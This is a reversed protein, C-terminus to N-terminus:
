GVIKQIMQADGRTYFLKNTFDNSILRGPGINRYIEAICDTAIKKYKYKSDVYHKENTEMNYITSADIDVFVNESFNTLPNSCATYGYSTNNTLINKLVANGSTISMIEEKSGQTITIDTKATSNNYKININIDGEYPYNSNLYNIGPDDTATGLGDLKHFMDKYTIQITSGMKTVFWKHNLNYKKYCNIVGYGCIYGLTTSDDFSTRDRQSACIYGGYHALKLLDDLLLDDFNLTSLKFKNWLFNKLVITAMENTVSSEAVISGNTNFFTFAKKISKLIATQLSSNIPAITSGNGNWWTDFSETTHYPAIHQFSNDSKSTDAAVRSARRFILGHKSLIDLVSKTVSTVDNWGKTHVTDPDSYAYRGCKIVTGNAYTTLTGNALTGTDSITFNINGRGTPGSTTYTDQYVTETSNIFAYHTINSGSGVYFSGRSLSYPTDKYGPEASPWSWTASTGNVTATPVNLYAHTNEDYTPLCTKPDGKFYGNAYPRNVITGNNKYYGYKGNVNRVKIADTQDNITFILNTPTYGSANCSLWLPANNAVCRILSINNLFGTDIDKYGGLVVGIIDDDDTDSNGCTELYYNMYKKNSIFSTHRLSNEGLLILKRASDYAWCSADITSGISYVDSNIELKSIISPTGHFISRKPYTFSRRYYNSSYQTEDWWASIFGTNWWYQYLDYTKDAFSYSSPNSAHNASNVTETSREIIIHCTNYFFSNVELKSDKAIYWFGTVTTDATYTKSSTLAASQTEKGNSTTSLISGTALITNKALKSKPCIWFGKKVTWYTTGEDAWSATVTEKDAAFMYTWLGSDPDGDATTNSSISWRKILVDSSYSSLADSSGNTSRSMTASPVFKNKDLINDTLYKHPSNRIYPVDIMSLNNSLICQWDNSSNYIYYSITKLTGNANMEGLSRLGKYPWKSQDTSYFVDKCEEITMFPRLSASSYYIAQTEDDNPIYATAVPSIASRQYTDFIRKQDTLAAITSNTEKTTECIYGTRVIYDANWTQNGQDNKAGFLVQGPSMQQLVLMPNEQPDAPKVPETKPSLYNNTIYYNKYSDGLYNTINHIENFFSDGTLEKLSGCIEESSMSGFLLEKLSHPAPKSGEIVNNGCIPQTNNPDLIDILDQGIIDKITTTEKILSGSSIGKWLNCIDEGGFLLEKLSNPSHDTEDVTPTVIDVLCLRGSDPTSHAYQPIEYTGVIAQNYSSELLSWEPAASESGATTCIYYGFYTCQYESSLGKNVTIRISVFAIDNVKASSYENKLAIAATSTYAGKLVDNINAYTGDTATSINLKQNLNTTNSLQTIISDKPSPYQYQITNVTIPLIDRDATVKGRYSYKTESLKSWTYANGSKTAKYIQCEKITSAINCKKFSKDNLWEILDMGIGDVIENSRGVLGDHSTGDKEMEKWKKGIDKISLPNGNADTGFLLEDLGNPETANNPDKKNPDLFDYLNSGIVDEIFHMLSNALGQNDGTLNRCARNFIDQIQSDTLGPKGFIMETLDAPQTGSHLQNYFYEYLSGWTDINRQFLLDISQLLGHKHAKIQGTGTRGVHSVRSNEAVATGDPKKTGIEEEYFPSRKRGPVPVTWAINVVKSETETLGLTYILDNIRQWWEGMINTYTLPPVAYIEQLQSCGQVFASLRSETANSETEPM